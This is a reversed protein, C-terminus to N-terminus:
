NSDDRNRFLRRPERMWVMTGLLWHIGQTDFLSLIGATWRLSPSSLLPISIWLFLAGLIPIGSVFRFTDRDGGLARHIPYRLIDLYFNLVAFFAGFSFLIAAATSM